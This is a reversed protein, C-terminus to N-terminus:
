CDSAMFSRQLGDMTPELAALDRVNFELRFAAYSGGDCLTILRQRVVRDGRQATFEAWHPTSSQSQIAWNGARAADLAAAAETEFEESFHGGWVSLGQAAISNYFIQGDGNASEGNGEFGPPADIEYGFRANEYPTWYQAWAPAALVLLVLTLIARM